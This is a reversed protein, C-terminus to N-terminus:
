RTAARAPDSRESWIRLRGGDKAPAVLVMGQRDTREVATAARALIGLLRDTPHGYRNRAGVSIIGAVARIRRYLEESQDASGHHAVKVVDVQGLRNVAMMQDQPREGLDGLFLSSFCGDVCPGEGAFAITVSSDNGPSVSAARATGAPPPWLVEWRLHGFLGSLGRGVQQVAAGSRILSTRLRDDQADAAPGVMARDVRGLVAAVGGVHDLDYHTLVLLQIRVVGLRSLCKRLLVPDPGTDILAIQGASRVLVADGQGIDCAAIQWDNPRHLEEGVRNGIVTGGYGVLVVVLFASGVARGRRQRPRRGLIVFLAAATVAAFLVVGIPGPIWPLQNGPLTSFFRAVASIWWSPLWALQAFAHGAVPLIPLLSCAALGLVTALPAAPGALLNAPIGYFPITPSLLLLVPQCALQAALPISIAVALPMPLWRGLVRSLPGALVLLGATALVSLVFGYSRSLWPDLTLLVLVAFALVPIARVPRGRALAILAIVAMMAARLVSPQPTVLVVFAALVGLAAAVRMGRSMGLAAGVAMVLGVIVACNAGSVATLHSLSAAKMAGDLTDSVASTDGIALGPLLDGADGSLGAADAAFRTRLSNAWDLYWPPRGPELVVRTAFFRFAADDEPSSAALTGTLTLRSGIGASAMRASAAGYVIVPVVVRLHKAGSSVSDLRASFVQRDSHQRVAETTVAAAEITRSNRSAELLEAPQRQAALITASSAMLASVICALAIRVSLDHLRPRRVAVAVFVCACASAWGAIAAAALWDPVAILVGVVVWGIAVPLALRGDATM